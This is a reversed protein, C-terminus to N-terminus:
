QYIVYVPGIFYHQFLLVAGAFAYWGCLPLALAMLAYGAALQWVLAMLVKRLLFAALVALGALAWPLVLTRFRRQEQEM